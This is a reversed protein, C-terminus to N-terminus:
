KYARLVNVFPPVSAVIGKKESAYMIMEAKSFGAEICWDVIEFGPITFVLSGGKPDVPNGHYEAEILYNVQGNELTSKVTSKQRWTFPHTSLMVGGKKLVRAMESLAKKIDPVHELVDCSIVADFANSELTLNLLNQHQVPYIRKQDIPDPVYESGLFFPYRDRLTSAFRTIAEAAYIKPARTLFLENENILLELLARQRTNLGKANLNERFNTGTISIEDPEVKGFYDSSIGNSQIRNVILNLENPDLSQTGLWKRFSLEDTFKEFIDIMIM